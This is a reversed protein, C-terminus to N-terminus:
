KGIGRVTREFDEDTMLTCDLDDAEIDSPHRWAFRGARLVFRWGQAELSM